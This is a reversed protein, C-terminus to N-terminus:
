ISVMLAAVQISLDLDQVELRQTQDRRSSSRRDRVKVVDLETVKLRPSHEYVDRLFLNLALPLGRMQLEVTLQAFGEPTTAQQAAPLLQSGRVTLGADEAFGRLLQQLQAGTQSQDAVAAFALEDLLVKAESAAELISSQFLQYGTLRAIRPENKAIESWSEFLSSWVSTILLLLLFASLILVGVVATWAERPLERLWTKWDAVRM